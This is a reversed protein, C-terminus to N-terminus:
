INKAEKIFKTGPRRTVSGYVLPLMNELRRCSSGYKQTDSRADIHRTVEGNNFSTVAINSM